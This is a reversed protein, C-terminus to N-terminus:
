ISLQIKNAFPIHLKLHGFYTTPQSIPISCAFAPYSPLVLYPLRNSFDPQFETLLKVRNKEGCKRWVQQANQSLFPNAGSSMALAITSSIHALFLKMLYADFCSKGHNFFFSSFM